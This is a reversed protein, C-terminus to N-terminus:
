ASGCGFDGVLTSLDASDATGDGNLDGACPPRRGFVGYM